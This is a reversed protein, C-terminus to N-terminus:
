LTDCHTMVKFIVQGQFVVPSMRRTILISDELVRIPTKAKDSSDMDFNRMTLIYGIEEGAKLMTGPPHAIVMLGSAPAAYSVFHEMVCTHVPHQPLAPEGSVIRKHKLYNLIRDADQEMEQPDIRELSGLEVTYAEVDLEIDNRGLSQLEEMLTMWPSFNVEDFAGGFENKMFLVHPIHFYPASKVTYEPAYLYRPAIDGTHLDLVSDADHSLTQLALAVHTNYELGHRSADKRWRDLALGIERRFERKIDKWPDRSRLRAFENINVRWEAGKRDAPLKFIRNWNQGTAADCVGHQEHDIQNNLSIPNCHPVIIITGYIDYSRLTTLLAFIAGNGAIEGGHNNAQIYCKKQGDGRLTFVPATLTHGSPLTRLAIESREYTWNV